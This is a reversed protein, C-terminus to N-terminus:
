GITVPSIHGEPLNHNKIIRRSKNKCRRTYIDKLCPLVGGVTLEALRAVIKLTQCDQEGFNETLVSKFTCSNFNSILSPFGPILELTQPSVTQRAKRVVSDTRLTWTPGETIHVGFYKISDM